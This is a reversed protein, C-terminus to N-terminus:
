LLKEKFVTKLETKTKDTYNESDVSFIAMEYIIKNLSQGKETLYYRVNKKDYKDVIRQILGNDEMDKLCSSLVRNSLKPKNEKFEHFRTKGFFLDNIIQVVWKKRILQIVNDIPFNMLQANANM